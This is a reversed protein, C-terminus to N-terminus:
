ELVDKLGTLVSNKYVCVYCVYLYTGIQWTKREGM